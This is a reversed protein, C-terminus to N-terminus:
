IKVEYTDIAICYAFFDVNFIHAYMSSIYMDNSYIDDKYLKYYPTKSWCLPLQSWLSLQNTREHAVIALAM